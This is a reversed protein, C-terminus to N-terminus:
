NQRLVRLMEAHVASIVQGHHNTTVDAIPSNETKNSLKFPATKQSRNNPKTAPATPRDSKMLGVSHM